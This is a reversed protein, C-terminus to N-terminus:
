RLLGDLIFGQHPKDAEGAKKGQGSDATATTSKAPEAGAAQPAELSGRVGCGALGAAILSVAIYLALSRAVIRM